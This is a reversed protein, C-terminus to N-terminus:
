NVSFPLDTLWVQKGKSLNYVNLWNDCGRGEVNGRMSLVNQNQSPMKGIEKFITM